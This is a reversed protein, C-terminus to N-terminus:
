GGCGESLQLRRPGSAVMGVHSGDGLTPPIDRHSADPFGVDGRQDLHEDPGEVVIGDGVVEKAALLAV